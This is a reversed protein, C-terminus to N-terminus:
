VTAPVKAARLTPRWYLGSDLLNHETLKNLYRLRSYESFPDSKSRFGSAEFGRLLDAVTDRLSFQPQHHPALERFKRFSVRYSRRDPAADKNVHVSVGPVQAAVAEALERVQYNGSDAGVNLVVFPNLSSAPRDIAWDIARAMDRVDILPRWPTGDSLIQIEGASWARAVFDNLVLDLRIRPSFGCATAFRLCTVVFKSDAFEELSEEALVKSKAYATLPEVASGEDRAGEQAYGYVSCSSAFTFNNVGAQKALRALDRTARYNVDLTVQEYANGIPDNSIGALHVIADIGELVGADVHRVDAFIQDALVIEPMSALGSLCSGFYGTDLGKLTRKDGTLAAVVVSGVYGMNGTILIRKMTSTQQQALGMDELKGCCAGVDARTSNQRPFYGNPQQFEEQRDETLLEPKWITEDRCTLDVVM